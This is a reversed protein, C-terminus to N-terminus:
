LKTSAAKRVACPIRDGDEIMHTRLWEDQQSRLEQGSGHRDQEFSQGLWEKYIMGNAPLGNSPTM